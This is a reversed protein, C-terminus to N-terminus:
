KADSAGEPAKRPRGGAHRPSAAFAEVSDRRLLLMHKGLRDSAIKGQHALLRVHRETCGIIRAAQQITVVDEM